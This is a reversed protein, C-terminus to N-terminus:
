SALFADTGHALHLYTRVFVETISDSPLESMLQILKNAGTNTYRLLENILSGIIKDTRSEDEQSADRPRMLLSKLKAKCLSLNFDNAALVTSSIDTQM